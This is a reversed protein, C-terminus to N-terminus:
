VRIKNLKYGLVMLSDSLHVNEVIIDEPLKLEMASFNWLGKIGLNSCLEAVEKTKEYPVSLIAIDVRNNIVYKELENLHRIKINRIKNGLKGPAVDFIGVLKFGRKEFNEYNALARGMNGAGIIVTHFEADM